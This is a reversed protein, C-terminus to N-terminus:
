LLASRGRESALLQRATEDSMAELESLIREVDEREAQEAQAQAVVVAMAAVNASQFLSPLSVDVDLVGTVRSVIQTALLSHGGLELFDDYVGVRDLGLVEAWIGALAEEMPTRPAVFENDLTPRVGDPAPLARRIVKGNAGLPLSELAVFVAPIMYEPLVDALHRRLQSVTPLERGTPVLYAVLRQDGPREEGLAVVADKVAAHDVLAMEVEAPEIRYGRIKLQFDERGLCVLRGDAELRGLDGTRYLREDSGEPDPQFAAQTLDPRQWYGPSLYRSRVFIKGIQDHDVPDGSDDLLVIENDEVSYGVPVNAGEIETQKDVFYWRISGTESSGLRNVFICEDSFHRNYLAVDRSYVPEGMMKILRLHPFEEGTLTDCFHRFVTPVSSYVTTEQQILWDGLGALGEQKIDLLHVSAGNLLACFVNHAGANVSCSYLPTLRDQSCIHLGNTYIMVYHLVNRHTQVVGKPQGTSGSTYLIWAFGDPRVSLGPNQIPAGADIDDINILQLDGRALEAAALRNRGDTVILAARSDKMIYTTRARPLAPDLPVYTKGAKLVGLIAAVIPADNDLLLAIPEEEGGREALIAHAV